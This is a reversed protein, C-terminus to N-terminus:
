PCTTAAPMTGSVLYGTVASAMCPDSSGNLLWTHGDGDWTLLRARGLAAALQVGALHPTNPDGTNALVLVRPATPGLRLAPVPQTAGPWVACAGAVYTPGFAGILPDRRALAAALAGLTRPSPRSATDQCTTAWQPGVLPAGSIDVEFSTSLARLPAGNGAAAARLAAPYGPAYAPVSIWFLTATYLDGLTVPLTDGGGPAPLPARRLRAQVTRYLAAAGPGLPCPAGAACPALDHALTAEAADAQETAQQVLPQTVVVSGDLVAARLHAGFMRAYVSGLVTGYSTGYYSIAPAGLAQRVRDMDRASTVTDVGPLLAGFRRACQAAMGAYLRAAPLAGGPRAPEPAVSAAAAPPPGCALPASAGTGREDFAVLEFRGAVAAPLLGALVPLIEVASEGPGGPNLFLPGLSPGPGTPPRVMVALAVSGRGPHAYDLPVAVTACEYGAHGPCPTLAAPARPSSAAPASPLGLSAAVTLAAALLPAGSRRRGCRM